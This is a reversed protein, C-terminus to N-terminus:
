QFFLLGLLGVFALLVYASAWPMLAAMRPRRYLEYFEGVADRRWYVLLYNLLLGLVGIGALVEEEGLGGANRSTYCHRLLLPAM